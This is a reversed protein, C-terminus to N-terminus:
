TTSVEFTVELSGGQQFAVFAIRNREVNISNKRLIRDINDLIEEQSSGADIAFSGHVGSIDTLDISGFAIVPDNDM